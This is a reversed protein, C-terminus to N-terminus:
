LPWDQMAGWWGKGPIYELFLDVILRGFTRTEQSQYLVYNTAQAKQLFVQGNISLHALEKKESGLEDEM